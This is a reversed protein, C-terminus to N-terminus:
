AAESEFPTRRRVDIRGFIASAILAARREQLLGIVSKAEASLSDMKATETDLFEAIRIQEALPVLPLDVQTFNGYRLAQGDRVLNTTSQLAQIYGLSKFLYSFYPGHVKGSPVLMVYASSICGRLNCWELGGQFSRMSIVFDGPEAHKLIDAGKIVQVVRAGELRMFDEQYVIGHKQSATLQRDSKRARENRLAFLRRSQIV